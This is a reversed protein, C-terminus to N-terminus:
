EANEEQATEEETEVPENQPRAVKEKIAAVTKKVWAIAANFAKVCAAAVVNWVKVAEAAVVKAVKVSVAAVIKAIKVAVVKIWTWTELLVEKFPRQQKKALIFSYVVAAIGALVVLSVLVILAILWFGLGNNVPEEM